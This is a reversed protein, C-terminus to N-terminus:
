TFHEIFKASAGIGGYRVCTKKLGAVKRSITPLVEYDGAGVRRVLWFIQLIAPCATVEASASRGYTM